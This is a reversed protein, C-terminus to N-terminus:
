QHVWRHKISSQFYLEDGQAFFRIRPDVRDKSTRVQDHYEGNKAMLNQVILRKTTEDFISTDKIGNKLEINIELYENNLQDYKTEMTFKGTLFSELSPDLIAERIHEPYIIAGYLKTSLDAREYIYVFPWELLTDDLELQKAENKLDINQAKLSDVLESFRIIGGHDGIAYRILPLTNYGTCLINNETTDFNIFQPNFQALTPTRNAVPFVIKQLSQNKHVIKRVLISLPTEMAMTGLDASGYINTMDRFPNEIGATRIIFDRFEESFGEAAFIFKMKLNKWDISHLPGEELVDKIFPPYGCLIIQDFQSHLNHIAEFIEKKNTGPTVLTIPYHNRLALSRFAQYTILGGIWIGMGFCVIVLTSPINGKTSMKLFIEHMMSSQADLNEDRPFYFPKGTSGSTATFTLAKDRLTGDFCLMELPYEHLYNKKSTPPVLALDEHSKIKEPSIKNKQLFDKYAPVRAAAAHFLDFAKKQGEKLWFNEKQDWFSKQKLSQHLRNM